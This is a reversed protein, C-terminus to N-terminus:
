VANSCMGVCTDPSIKGTDPQPSLIKNSDEHTVTDHSLGTLLPTPDSSMSESRLWAVDQSALRLFAQLGAARIVLGRGGKGCRRAVRYHSRRAIMAFRHFYYFYEKGLSSAEQPFAYPDDPKKGLRDGNWPQHFLCTTGDKKVDESMRVLSNNLSSRAFRVGFSLSTHNHM